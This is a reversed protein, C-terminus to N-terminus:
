MPGLLPLTLIVPPSHGQMTVSVVYAVLKGPGM